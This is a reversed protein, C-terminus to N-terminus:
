FMVLQNDAPDRIGYVEHAMAITSQGDFVPKEMVHNIVHWGAWIKLGSGQYTISLQNRAGMGGFIGMEFAFADTLEKDTLGTQANSQGGLRQVILAPSEKSLMFSM